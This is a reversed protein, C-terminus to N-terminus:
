SIKLRKMKKWLGERTISFDRATQARAGQNRALVALILEREFRDRTKHIPEGPYVATRLFGWSEETM